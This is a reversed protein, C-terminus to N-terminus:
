LFGFFSIAALLCLFTGFAMIRSFRAPASKRTRLGAIFFGFGMFFYLIWADM